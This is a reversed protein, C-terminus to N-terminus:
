PGTGQMLEIARVGTVVTIWLVAILCFGFKASFAASRGARMWDKPFRMEDVGEAEMRRLLAINQRNALVYQVLDSLLALLALVAPIAVQQPQLFPASKGSASEVIYSLSVAIVGVSVTWVRDSIRETVWNLNEIVENKNPM